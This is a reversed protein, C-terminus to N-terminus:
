CHRDRSSRLSESGDIQADRVAVSVDLGGSFGISGQDKLFLRVIGGV